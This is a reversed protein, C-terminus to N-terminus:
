RWETAEPGGVRRVKTMYAKANSFDYYAKEPNGDDDRYVQGNEDYIHKGYLFTGEEVGRILEDKCELENGNRDFKTVSVTKGDNNSRQEESGVPVWGYHASSPLECELNDFGYRKARDESMVSKDIKLGRGPAEVVTTKIYSVKPKDFGDYFDTVRTVLSLTNKTTEVSDLQTQYLKYDYENYATSGMFLISDNDHQPAPGVIPIGLDTHQEAMIKMIRWPADKVNVPQIKTQVITDHETIYKPIYVTDHEVKPIYVTDTKPIYTTDHIEKPVYVTDTNNVIEKVYVTDTKPVLVTDTKPVYITDTHYEPVKVTDVIYETPGPVEVTDRKTITDHIIIPDPIVPKYYVSAFADSGSTAWSESKIFDDESCGSLAGAEAAAMLTAMTATRMANSSHKSAPADMQPYTANDKNKSKKSKGFLGQFGVQSTANIANVEM